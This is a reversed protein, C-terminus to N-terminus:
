AGDVANPIHDGPREHIVERIRLVPLQKFLEKVFHLDRLLFHRRISLFERAHIEHDGSAHGM